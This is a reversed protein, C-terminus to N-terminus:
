SHVGCSCAFDRVGYCGNPGQIEEYVGYVEETLTKTYGYVIFGMVEEAPTYLRLPWEQISKQM